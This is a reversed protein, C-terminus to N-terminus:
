MAPGGATEWTQDGDRGSSSGESTCSQLPDMYSTPFREVDFVLSLEARPLLYSAFRDGNAELEAKSEAGTRDRGKAEVELEANEGATRTAARVSARRGPKVLARPRERNMRAATPSVCRVHAVGGCTGGAPLRLQRGGHPRSHLDRPRRVSM